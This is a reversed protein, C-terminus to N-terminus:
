LAPPVITVTQSVLGNENEVTLTYNTQVAPLPVTFSGKGSADVPIRGKQTFFIHRTNTVHYSFTIIKSDHDIQHTLSSISATLPELFISQSIQEENCYATLTYFAKKYISVLCSGQTDQQSNGPNLIVKDAGTVIWSLTVSDRFGTIIDALDPAFSCISLPCRKKYITAQTEFVSTTEPEM